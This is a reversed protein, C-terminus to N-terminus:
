HPKIISINKPPHGLLFSEKNPSKSSSKINKEPSVVINLSFQNVPLLEFHVEHIVAMSSHFLANDPYFLADEEYPEIKERKGDEFTGRLTGSNIRLDKELTGIILDWFVFM